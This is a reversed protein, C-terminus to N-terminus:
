QRKRGKKFKKASKKPAAEKKAPKDWFIIKYQAGQRGCRRIKVYQHINLLAKREQAAEEYTGFIGFAKWIKNIKEELIVEM